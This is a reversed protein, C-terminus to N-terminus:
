GDQLERAVIDLVQPALGMGLHTQAVEIHKVQPSWHDICAQWAVVGDRKSYIASVPVQLPTDFRAAVQAEIARLDHGNARYWPAVATFRPGGIVPSGLTVVQRVAGPHDRALERALYGGLSWGVLTVAGGAERALAQVPGRLADLLRQVQGTNRGQNWHHVTHGSRRLWAAMPVMSRPSAGFGPLLLVTRPASARRRPLLLSRPAWSLADLPLRLEQLAGLAGPAAIPDYAIGM